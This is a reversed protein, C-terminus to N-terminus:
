PDAPAPTPNPDGNSLQRKENTKPSHMTLKLHNLIEFYMISPHVCVHLILRNTICKCTYNRTHFIVSFKANKYIRERYTYCTLLLFLLGRCKRMRM